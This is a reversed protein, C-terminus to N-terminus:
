IQYSHSKGAQGLTHGIHSGPYGRRCRATTVPLLDGDYRDRLRM